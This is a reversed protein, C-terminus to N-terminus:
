TCKWLAVVDICFLCWAYSRDKTCCRGLLTWWCHRARFPMCCWRLGIIWPPRSWCAKAVLAANSCDDCAPCHLLLAFTRRFESSRTNLVNATNPSWSLGRHGGVGCGVGVAWGLVTQSPFHSGTYIRSYGGIVVLFIQVAFGVSGVGFRLLLFTTAATFAQVHGSPMGFGGECTMPFQRVQNSAWYPRDGMFLWKLILNLIDASCSVLVLDVALARQMLGFLLPVIISLVSSPHIWETYTALAMELWKPTIEQIEVVYPIELHHM